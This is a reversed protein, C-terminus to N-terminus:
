VCPRRGLPPRTSCTAPRTLPPTTSWSSSGAPTPRPYQPVLAALLSPLFAAEDHCPLLVAVTPADGHSTIVPVDSPKPRRATTTTSGSSATSRPPSRSRWTRVAAPACSPRRRGAPSWVPPGCGTRRERGVSRHPREGERVAPTRRRHRAAAIAAQRHGAGHGARRFPCAARRRRRAHPRVWRRGSRHRRGQRGHDGRRRVGGQERLGALLDRGELVEAGPLNHLQARKLISRDQDIVEAAIGARALFHAATLGAAGGGVVAVTTERTM